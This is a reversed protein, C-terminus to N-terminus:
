QKFGLLLEVNDTERYNKICALLFGVPSPKRQYVDWNPVGSPSRSSVCSDLPFGCLCGQSIHISVAEADTWQTRHVLMYGDMPDKFPDKPIWHSDMIWLSHKLFNIRFGEVVHM